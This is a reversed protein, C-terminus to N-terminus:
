GALRKKLFYKCHGEPYDELVGFMEYGLREYFPRAEFSFTDVHACRCGLKMAEREVRNMLEAGHGQGRLSEEVWLLTIHVWGGFLSAMAGGVVRGEHDRLFVRISKGLEANGLHKLNNRGLGELAVLVDGETAEMEQRSLCVQTSFKVEAM